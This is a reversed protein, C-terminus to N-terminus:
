VVKTVRINREGNEVEEVVKVITAIATIASVTTSIVSMKCIDGFLKNQFELNLFLFEEQLTKVDPYFAMDLLFLWAQEVRFNLFSFPFDKFFM